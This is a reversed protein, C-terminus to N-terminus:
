IILEGIFARQSLSGYLKELEQLSIKYHSKLTYINSVIKEFKNQSEIPPVPIRIEKISTLSLFTRVTDTIQTKFQRQVIDSNVCFELYTSNIIKKNPSIKNFNQSMIARPLSLPIMLAKGSSGVAVIVIDGPKIESRKLEIAKEESIFKVNKLDLTGSTINTGRLIIVGNEKYHQSTLSSGFPGSSLSYKEEGKIENITKWNFKEVQGFMELFVSKLYEDLLAISQKRQEILSEAKSLINAIHIQESLKEPIPIKLIRLSEKNLTAGMAANNSGILPINKLVYYLYEPFLKEKDKIQLGIIAENTYLDKGAFALKGISLKFSMLLSGKTILKCGSEKVASETIEEKTSYLIKSKMDSISVWSHGKGWYKNVDRRPTKGIQLHCVDELKFKM